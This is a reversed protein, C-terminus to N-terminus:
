PFLLDQIQPPSGPDQAFHKRAHNNLNVESTEASSIRLSHQELGHLGSVRSDLYRTRPLDNASSLISVMTLIVGVPFSAMRVAVLSSVIVVVSLRRCSHRARHEYGSLKPFKRCSCLDFRCKKAVCPLNDSAASGVAIVLPGLASM